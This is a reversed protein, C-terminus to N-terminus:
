GIKNGPTWIDDFLYPEKLPTLTFIEWGSFDTLGRVTAVRHGRPPPEDYWAMHGWWGEAVESKQEYTIIDFTSIGGSKHKVYYKDYIGMQNKDRTVLHKPLWTDLAATIVEGVAKKFDNALIRGRVPERYRREM